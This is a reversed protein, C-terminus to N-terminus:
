SGFYTFYFDDFRIIGSSQRTDVYNGIGIHHGDVQAPDRGDGACGNVTIGLRTDFQPDNMDFIVQNDQKVIIHGDNIRAKHAVQVHVWQNLPFAVPNVQRYLSGANPGDIGPFVVAPSGGIHQNNFRLAIQPVVQQGAIAQAVQLSWVVGGCGGTVDPKAQIFNCFGTATGDAFQGKCVNDSLKMWVSYYNFVNSDFLPGGLTEMDFKVIKANNDCGNGGGGVGADPDKLGAFVSCNGNKADGDCRCEVGIDPDNCPANNTPWNLVAGPNANPTFVWEQEVDGSECDSSFYTVQAESFRCFAVLALIALFAGAQKRTGM